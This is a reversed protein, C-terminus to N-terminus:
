YQPKQTYAPIQYYPARKIRLGKAALLRDTADTAGSVTGYDDILILGGPVIRDYLHDLAVRTPEFVDM